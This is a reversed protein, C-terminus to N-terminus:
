FELLFFSVKQTHQPIEGNTMLTKKNAQKQKLSNPKSSKKKAITAAAQYAVFASIEEM